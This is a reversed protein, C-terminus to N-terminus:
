ALAKSLQAGRSALRRVRQTGQPNDVNCLMHSQGTHAVRVVVEQGDHVQQQAATENGAGASKASVGAGTEQLGVPRRHQSSAPAAPIPQLWPEGDIQVHTYGREGKIQTLPPNAHTSPAPQSTRPMADM